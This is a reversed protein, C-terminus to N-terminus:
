HARHRGKARKAEVLTTIAVLQEEMWALQEDEPLGKIREPMQWPDELLSNPLGKDMIAKAVQAVLREDLSQSMIEGLRQVAAPTLDKLMRAAERQSCLSPVGTFRRQDFGSKFKNKPNPNAM